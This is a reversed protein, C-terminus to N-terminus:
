HRGYASKSFVFEVFEISNLKEALNTWKEALNADEFMCILFVKFIDDECDTFSAFYM